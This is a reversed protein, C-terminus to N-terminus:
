MQDCVEVIQDGCRGAVLFYNHQDCAFIQQFQIIDVATLVIGVLLRVQGLFQALSAAM